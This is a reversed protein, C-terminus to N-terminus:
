LHLAYTVGLDGLHHSFFLNKIKQKKIFNLKLRIFEAVTLKKTHSSGTALNHQIVMEKDLPGYINARFSVYGNSM